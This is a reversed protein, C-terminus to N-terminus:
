EETFYIGSYLTKAPGEMIVELTERVTIKLTGGKLRIKIPTNAPSLNNLYAAIATACAGTGCAYTEGSGREWVRMEINYPDIVYAFETNTREPFAPHYEFKPGIKELDLSDPSSTMFVVAHPNGMSVATINYIKNDVKLPSDIMTETPSIVPINKTKTDAKGMNVTAGTCTNNEYILKLTKIGSLTEIKAEDKVLGHDALYKGVCRVANGCMKGESGDANFMRMRADADPSTPRCICVVGDAGVSFHRPSMERALQAINEPADGTISDLCDLYIYDNACGQMKTFPIQTM